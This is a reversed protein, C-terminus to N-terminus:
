NKSILLVRENKNLGYYNDEDFRNVSVEFGAELLRKELGSVSYIRVHDKQGFHELRQEETKFDPNEFIDGEKFPTQVFAKGGKKLVRYLESIAKKDQEIHELIHYCFISDFYNDEVPIETIDYHYEAIFDDSLDTPFYQIKKTQKIKRYLSRSPSFDLLRIDTNGLFEKKFQQFLRRDRPM